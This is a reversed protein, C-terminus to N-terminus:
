DFQSKLTSFSSIHNPSIFGVSKSDKSHKYTPFSTIINPNNLNPNPSPNINSNSSSLPLHSQSKSLNNRLNYHYCISHLSYQKRISDFWEHEIVNSTDYRKSPDKVLLHQLLDKAQPSINKKEL